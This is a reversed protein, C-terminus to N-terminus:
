EMELSYTSSKQFILGFCSIEFVHGEANCIIFIEEGHMWCVLPAPVFKNWGQIKIHSVDVGLMHIVIINYTGGVGGNKLKSKLSITFM